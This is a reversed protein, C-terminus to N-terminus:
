ENIEGKNDKITDIIAMLDIQKKHKHRYYYALMGLIIAPNEKLSGFATNCQSCLIERVKGTIHDHDVHAAERESCIPCLGEQEAIKLNVSELSIGYKTKLYKHRRHEAARKNLDKLTLRGM